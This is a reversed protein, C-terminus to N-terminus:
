IDVINGVWKMLHASCPSRGFTITLINITLDSYHIYTQTPPPHIPTPIPTPGATGKEREKTVGEDEWRGRGRGRERNEQGDKKARMM